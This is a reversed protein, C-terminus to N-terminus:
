TSSINEIKLTVKHIRKRDAETVTLKCNRYQLSENKKPMRKLEFLILGGVTNYDDSPLELKLEENLQRMEVKGDLLYSGDDLKKIMPTHDDYEDKIEGVIEEILDEITVLGSTGGYEDVVIAIQTSQTQFEKLLESIKKTEPVYYPLTIFEIATMDEVRKRWANLINKIHIVGVITDITDEYVPVRSLKEDSMTELIEDMPTNVDVAIIDVRHVMVERVLTDGFEIISHIMKRETQEIAGDKAGATIIERIEEETINLTRIQASGGFLRVTIKSIWSFFLTFPRLFILAINMPTALLMFIREPMHQAIAKPALEGFILLCITIIGTADALAYPERYGYTRAIDLTISSALVAAGVNLINNGVYLGTLFRNQNFSWLELLKARTGGRTIIKKISVRSLIHMATEFSSFFGSLFVLLFFMVIELRSIDNM